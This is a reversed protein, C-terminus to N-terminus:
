HQASTIAVKRIQSVFDEERTVSEGHEPYPLGCSFCESIIPWLGSVMMLPLSCVQCGSVMLPLGWVQFTWQHSIDCRLHENISPWPGFMWQHVDQYKLRKPLEAFIFYTRFRWPLCFVLLSLGFNLIQVKLAMKANALVLRVSAEMNPVYQTEVFKLHRPKLSDICGGTM